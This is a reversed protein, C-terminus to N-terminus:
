AVSFIRRGAPRSRSSWVSQAPPIPKPPHPRRPSPPLCFPLRSGDCSGWPRGEKSKRPNSSLQCAFALAGVTVSLAVAEAADPQQVVIAAATGAALGLLHGEPLDAARRRPRLRRRRAGARRLIQATECLGGFVRGHHAHREAAM